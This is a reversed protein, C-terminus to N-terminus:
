KSKKKKSQRKARRRIKSNLYKTSNFRRRFMENSLLKFQLDRRNSIVVGNVTWQINKQILEGNYFPVLFCKMKSRGIELSEGCFLISNGQTTYLRPEHSIEEKEGAARYLHFQVNPNLALIQNWGKQLDRPRVFCVKKTENHLTVFDGSADRNKTPVLENDRQKMTNEGVQFRLEFENTSPNYDKDNEISSQFTPPEAMPTFHSISQYHAEPNTSDLLEDHQLDQQTQLYQQVDVHEQIQPQPFGNAWPRHDEIVNTGYFNDFVLTQNTQNQPPPPPPPPPQYGFAEDQQYPSSFPDGLYYNIMYLSLDDAM